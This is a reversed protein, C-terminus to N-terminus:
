ASIRDYRRRERRSESIVANIEDLTMESTGNKISQAHIRELAELGLRSTEDESVLRTETQINATM